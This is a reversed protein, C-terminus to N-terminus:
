QTHTRTGTPDYLYSAPGCLCPPANGTAPAAGARASPVAPTLGAPSASVALVALGLANTGQAFSLTM